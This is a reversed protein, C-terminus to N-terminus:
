GQTSLRPSTREREAKALTRAARLQTTSMGFGEAVLKETLGEFCIEFSTWSPGTTRTVFPKDDSWGRVAPAGHIGVRVDSSAMTRWIEDEDLQM